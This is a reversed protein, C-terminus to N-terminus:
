KTEVWGCNYSNRQQPQPQQQATVIVLLTLVGVPAEVFGFFKSKFLTKVM